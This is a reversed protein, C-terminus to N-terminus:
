LEEIGGGGYKLKEEQHAIVKKLEEIANHNNQVDHQNLYKLVKVQDNLVKETEDRLINERECKSLLSSLKVDGGLLNDIINNGEIMEEYIEKDTKKENFMNPIEFYEKGENPDFGFEEVMYRNRRLFEM